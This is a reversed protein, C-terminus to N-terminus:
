KILQLSFINKIPVIEIVYSTNNYYRALQSVLMFYLLTIKKKKLMKIKMKGYIAVVM